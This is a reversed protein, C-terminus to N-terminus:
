TEDDDEEDPNNIAVPVETAEAHPVQKALQMTGFSAIAITILAGLIIAAGQGAVLFGDRLGLSVLAIPLGQIATAMLGSAVPLRSFKAAALHVALSATVIAGTLLLYQWNGFLATFDLRAGLDIFFVPVLFGEALGILQKAFRRPQGIFVCVGGAAFGPIMAANTGFAQALTVLGFLILLSLRLDLAWGRQKSLERYHTGIESNKFWYYAAFACIATVVVAVAGLLVSWLKDPTLILPLLAVTSIDAMAVWATTTLVVSGQLRQEQVMPMVAATSSAAALLIWLGVHSISTFHAMFLAVPIALAFSALAAKIGRKLGLRLNADRVPLKTGVLFMLMVFGIDSLVQM